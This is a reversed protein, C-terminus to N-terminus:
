YEAILCLLIVLNTDYIEGVEVFTYHGDPPNVKTEPRQLMEIIECMEKENEQAIRELEQEAVGKEQM